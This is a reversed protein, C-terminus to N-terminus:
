TEEALSCIKDIVLSLVYLYFQTTEKIEKGKKQLEKIRKELSERKEVLKNFSMRAIKDELEGMLVVEQIFGM